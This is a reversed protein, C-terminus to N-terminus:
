NFSVFRDTGAILDSVVTLGAFTARGTVPLDRRHAGYACAYLKLGESQLAQLDARDVGPVADDICYLYVDCGCRLAAGALRVGHHFGAADPGCSILIGLKRRPASM